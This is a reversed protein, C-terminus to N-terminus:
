SREFFRGVHDSVFDVDGESVHEAVPLSLVKRSLTEANPCEYGLGSLYPVQSLSTPYHIGTEINMSRLYTQLGERDDVQVVYHHYVSGPIVPPLNVGKCTRLNSRYREANRVRVQNWAPLLALKLNLVTAQLSDLRSNRGRIKHDFKSLRGHNSIRRIQEFLAPDRTVVAGADGFAGLNKGPYFSFAAADGITGVMSESAKAGHAQACDEIVKAGYQKALAMVEGMPQPHGYLHVVIVAAAGLKLEREMSELDITFNQKVDFFGLQLGTNLVAEASAVFSNAQVLIREGPNFRMAQLIIELADTGNAVGAVFPAGLFEGFHKEFKAVEDGGIFRANELSESWKASLEDKIAAYQASLDGMKVPHPRFKSAVNM